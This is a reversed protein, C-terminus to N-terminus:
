SYVSNSSVEASFIEGMIIWPVPGFGISFASIYVAIVILPLWAFIASSEFNTNDKLMICSVLGALSICMMVASIILLVRRGAKDIISLSVITMFVQIVVDDDDDYCICKKFKTIMFAHEVCTPSTQFILFIRHLFTGSCHPCDGERSFEPHHSALGM